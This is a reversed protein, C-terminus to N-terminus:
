AYESPIGVQVQLVELQTLPRLERMLDGPLTQICDQLRLQRLRQLSRLGSWAGLDCGRLELSCLRPCAALEELCRVTCLSERTAASADVVLNELNPLRSLPEWFSQEAQGAPEPISPQTLRGAPELIAPQIFFPQFSSPRLLLAPRVLPRHITLIIRVM